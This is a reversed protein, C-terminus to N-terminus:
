SASVHGGGEERNFIKGRAERGQLFMKGEIGTGIGMKTVAGMGEEKYPTLSERIDKSKYM